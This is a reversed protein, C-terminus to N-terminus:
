AYAASRLMRTLHIVAPYKSATKAMEDFEDTKVVWRYMVKELVSLLLVMIGANAKLIETYPKAMVDFNASHNIVQDYNVTKTGGPVEIEITEPPQFITPTDNVYPKLDPNPINIRTPGIELTVSKPIVESKVVSYGGVKFFYTGMVGLLQFVIGTAVLQTGGIIPLAVSILRYALKSYRKLGGLAIETLKRQSTPPNLIHSFDSHWSLYAAKIRKQQEGDYMNALKKLSVKKKGAIGGTFISDMPKKAEFSVIQPLDDATTILGSFARAIRIALLVGLHDDMIKMKKFLPRVLMEFAERLANVLNMVFNKPLNYIRKLLGTVDSTFSANRELHAIRRELFAIRQQASIKRM